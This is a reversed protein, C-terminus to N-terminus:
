FATWYWVGPCNSDLAREQWPSSTQRNLTGRMSEVLRMTGSLGSDPAEKSRGKFDRSHSLTQPSSSSSSYASCHSPSSLLKKRKQESTESGCICVCVQICICICVQICICVCVLHLYLCLYLYFSHFSLHLCLLPQYWGPVVLTVM